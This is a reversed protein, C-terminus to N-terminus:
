PVPRHDAVIASLNHRPPFQPLAFSERQAKTWTVAHEVGKLMVSNPVAHAKLRGDLGVDHEVGKPM